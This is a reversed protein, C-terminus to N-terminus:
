ELAGEVTGDAINGGAGAYLVIATSVLV